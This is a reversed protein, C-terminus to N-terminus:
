IVDKKFVISQDEEKGVECGVWGPLGAFNISEEVGCDWRELYFFRSPHGSPVGSHTGKPRRM